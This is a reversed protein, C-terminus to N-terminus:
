SGSAHAPLQFTTGQDENVKETAALDLDALAIKRPHGPTLDYLLDGVIAYNEVNLKHGDKFVLVTPTQGSGVSAANASVNDSTSTDSTSAATNTLTKTNDGQDVGYARDAFASTGPGRRDFVTPGGNEQDASDDTAYDGYYPAAYVPVAYPYYIVNDHRHHHRFRNQGTIFFKNAGSPVVIAPNGGDFGNPGLSTVSPAVGPTASRGPGLSTVSPPVGHIQALLAPVAALTFLLVLIMIQRMRSHYDLHRQRSIM